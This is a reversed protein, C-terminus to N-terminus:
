RAGPYNQIYLQASELAEFSAYVTWAHFLDVRWSVWYTLQDVRQSILWQTGDVQDYEYMM